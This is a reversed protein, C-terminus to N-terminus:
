AFKTSRYIASCLAVIAIVALGTVMPREAGNAAVIGILAWIVAMAYAPEESTAYVPIAVICALVIAILAWSIPGFVVGYGAMVTALSVASAATLWGAYLGVPAQFLWEDHRPASLLAAIATIAMAIITITAWIPSANAIALWPVGIALSIILPLRANNWVEDNARKWVGFGASLILWVYILGWIAFTWGIPQVPPNIQPRPLQDAGFGMFPETLYPSIAFALTLALVLIAKVPM